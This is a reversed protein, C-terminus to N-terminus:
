FSTYFCVSDQLNEEAQFDECQVDELEVEKSSSIDERVLPLYNEVALLTPAAAIEQIDGGQEIEITKEKATIENNNLLLVSEEEVVVQTDLFVPDDENKSEVPIAEKTEPLVPGVISCQKKNYIAPLNESATPAGSCLLNGPSLMGCDYIVLNKYGARGFLKGTSHIILNDVEVDGVVEGAIELSTCKIDGRYHGNVTIFVKGRAYLNGKYMGHVDVQVGPLKDKKINVLFTYFLCTYFYLSVKCLVIWANKIM